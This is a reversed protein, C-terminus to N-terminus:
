DPELPTLAPKGSLVAIVNDIALNAMADRTPRSASAIHPTLAVSKLALLEPLVKPEGEYVDLGAAALQGSALAAVLAPEDIIGGRAINTLTATTKMLALERAGILHHAEPTYPLVVVLHDSRRFLDDFSVWAANLEREIEPAQARRNHYIVKMDFGRARRAIGQGIRGMGLIGLTTHHIDAGAMQDLEWRQWHGERMWREGECIRRAAAMMLAFGFDATTETLVDPTNTVVIGRAHCAPVDIHNYGVSVSAIVRLHSALSLSDADIRDGGTIIAGEAHELLRALAERDLARDAQNDKVEFHEALRQIHSPFLARTVVVRAKAPHAATM